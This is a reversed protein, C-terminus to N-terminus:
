DAVASISTLIIVVAGDETVNLALKVDEVKPEDADLLDALASLSSVSKGYQGEADKDHADVFKAGSVYIDEYLKRDSTTVTLLKDNYLAKAGMTADVLVGAEDDWIYKQTNNDKAITLTSDAENLEYYGDENVTYEYFGVTDATENEAVAVSKSTGDVFYLTQMVYGDGVESKDTDAVFVLDENFDADQEIESGSGIVVYKVTTGKDATVFWVKDQNDTTLAIGGTATSVKLDAGNKSVMVYETSSNFRYTTGGITFRSLNKTFAFSVSGTNGNFADWDDGGDWTTLDYKEDGAKHTKDAADTWKKDSLTVLKGVYNAANTNYDSDTDNKDAGELIVESATGDLAVLQAHYTDVPTGYSDKDSIKWVKAVYYVDDITAAAGEVLDIGMIYSNKDLYLTYTSDKSTSVDNIATTLAGTNYQATATYKTGDVTLTKDTVNKTTVTGEVTEPIYSALVKGGKEIVAVYADEEYTDANYGAIDTNNYETGNITVYATVGDEADDEDVDTDVDTIQELTYSTIVATEIKNDKGLFIEVVDGTELNMAAAPEEGNLAYVAGNNSDYTDTLKKNGSLDKLKALVDASNVNKNIVVTYDAAETDTVVKNDDSVNGYYWVAAPRQLDDTEDSSVLKLDSFYQECFQKYGEGKGDAGAYNKEGEDKIEIAKASSPNSVIQGGGPLEIISGKNDYQVMDATLTQFAMQAAEDRTMPNSLVTGDVFIGANVADTAVNIAWTDGVYNQVTADYGLAVLLMKAFAHGTLEGEPNFKGTGDGALIGMNACYAIYPASWRDAAVDSFKTGSAGLKEANEPGMLMYCIIKAAQERTLIGDPMFDGKENGELVGIANMVAAATTNEIEAQDNFNAASAGVVTLGLVMVSALAMSLVRKLNRM